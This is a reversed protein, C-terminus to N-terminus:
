ASAECIYLSHALKRSIWKVKAHVLRILYKEECYRDRSRVVLQLAMIKESKERLEATILRNLSGVTRLAWRLTRDFLRDRRRPVEAGAPRLQQRCFPRQHHPPLGM